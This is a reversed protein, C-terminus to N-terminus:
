EYNEWKKKLEALTKAATEFDYDEIQQALDETGPVSRITDLLAACEPNINELMPKLKEFLALTQEINLTQPKKQEAPKDFLLKLEELVSMLEIKLINMKNEWVSAIGDKLLVEVEAAANRLTTKGILGANSKLSHALRHAM